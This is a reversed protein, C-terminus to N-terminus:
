FNSILNELYEISLKSYDADILNINKVRRGDPMILRRGGEKNRYYEVEVTVIPKTQLNTVTYGLLKVYAPTCHLTEETRHCQVGSKVLKRYNNTEEM